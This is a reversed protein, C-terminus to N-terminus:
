RAAIVNARLLVNDKQRFGSNMAKIIEGKAFGEHAEAMLVEHERGNFVSGPAPRIPTIGHEKLIAEMKEASQDLVAVFEAIHECDSDRLRSISYHQIEEYTSIEYLTQEKKFKTLKASIEDMARAAPSVVRQVFPMYIDNSPSFNMYETVTSRARSDYKQFGAMKMVMERFAKEALEEQWLPIEENEIAKKLSDLM